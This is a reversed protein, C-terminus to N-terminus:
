IWPLQANSSSPRLCTLSAGSRIHLHPRPPSPALSSCAHPCPETNPDPVITVHCPRHHGQDPTSPPPLAQPLRDDPSSVPATSCRLPPSLLLPERASLIPLPAPLFLLHLPCSTGRSRTVTHSRPTQTGIDSM